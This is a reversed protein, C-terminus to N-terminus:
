LLTNNLIKNYKFIKKYLTKSLSKRLSKIHRIHHTDSGIFDVMGNKILLETVKKIEKSYYGNISNINIQFLVGIDKLEQYEEISNHLYPYREPHALVPKYGKLIMDYVINEIDYPPTFYSFEFLLYREDGFSLLEEKQIIKEFYEDIYYEGAVEIEIDISKKFLEKKLNLYGDIIQNKSNPFLNSIHPTIILKKYGLDHLEEVLIISSQMDKAGDDINPILHSHIDVNTLLERNKNKLFTLVM